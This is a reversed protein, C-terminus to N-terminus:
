YSGRRKVNRLERKSFEVFTLPATLAGGSLAMLKSRAEDTGWRTRVGFPKAFLTSSDEREDVIRDDIVAVCDRAANAEAFAALAAELADSLEFLLSMEKEVGHAQAPGEAAPVAFLRGAPIDDCTVTHFPERLLPVAQATEGAGRPLMWEISGHPGGASREVTRFYVLNTGPNAAAWRALREREGTITTGDASLDSDEAVVRYALRGPFSLGAALFDEVRPDQRGVFVVALRGDPEALVSSEVFRGTRRLRMHLADRLQEQIEDDTVGDSAWGAARGFAYDAQFVFARGM